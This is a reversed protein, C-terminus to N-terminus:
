YDDLLLRELFLCKPGEHPCDTIVPGKVQWSYLDKSEALFTHSQNVEDKYWMRWLGDPMQFVCADIVKESSLNLRSEFTWNWLNKSTMHVIHRPGTWHIPVGPVYSVYMHYLGDHWIIEPAWFTNRGLEFELGPLVGRYLWTKGHDTSSAVGIDTGHVWAFRQCSVNARRNTYLLWWSQEQHNWIITPDAAGDYIPDRFLPANPIQM